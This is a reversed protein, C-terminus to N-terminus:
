GDNKIRWMNMIPALTPTFDDNRITNLLRRTEIYNEQQYHIEALYPNIMEPNINLRLSHKFCATALLFEHKALYIRGLSYSVYGDEPLLKEAELM